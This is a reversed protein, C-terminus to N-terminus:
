CTRAYELAARKVEQFSDRRIALTSPQKDKDLIKNHRLWETLLSDALSQIDSRLAERFTKHLNASEGRGIFDSQTETAAPGKGKVAGSEPASEPANATDSPGSRIYHRKEGSAKVERAGGEDTEPDDGTAFLLTSSLIYKICGTIAKYIQKDSGDVGCGAFHGFLSYGTEADIFEYSMNVTGLFQVKERGTNDISRIEEQKYDVVSATFLVGHKVLLPQIHAKIAAESAYTYRFFENKKDKAIYQCDSMIALMKRALMARREDQGTPESM